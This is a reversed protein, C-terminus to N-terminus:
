RFCTIFLFFPDIAHIEYGQTTSDELDSRHSDRNVQSSRLRRRYGIFRIRDGCPGNRVGLIALATHNHEDPVSGADHQVPQQFAVIDQDLTKDIVLFL